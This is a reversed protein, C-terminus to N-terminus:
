CGMQPPVVFLCCFPLEAKGGRCLRAAAGCSKKNQEAAPAAPLLEPCVQAWKEEPFFGSPSWAPVSCGWVGREGSDQALQRGRQPMRNTPFCTVTAPPNRSCCVAAGTHPQYPGQAARAATGDGSGGASEQGAGKGRRGRARGLKKRNNQNRPLAPLEGARLPRPNTGEQPAPCRPLLLNCFLHKLFLAFGDRNSTEPTQM